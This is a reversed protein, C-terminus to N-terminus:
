EFSFMILLLVLICIFIINVHSFCWQSSSNTHFFVGIFLDKECYENVPSVPICTWVHWHSIYLFHVSAISVLCFIHQHSSGIDNLMYFFIDSIIKLDDEFRLQENCNWALAHLVNNPMYILLCIQAHLSQVHILMLLLASVIMM